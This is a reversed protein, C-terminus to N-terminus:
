IYILRPQDPPNKSRVMVNYHNKKFLNIIQSYYSLVQCKMIGHTIIYFLFFIQCFGFNPACGSGLVERLGIKGEVRRRDRYASEGWFGLM